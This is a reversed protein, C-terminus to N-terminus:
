ILASIWSKALDQQKGTGTEFTAKAADGGIGLMALAQKLQTDGIETLGKAGAERGGLLTKTLIDDISKGAESGAERQAGVTGGSRGTGTVEAQRKMADAQSTVAQVAPAANTAAETRGAKMLGSFYNQAQGLAGQGSAQSKQAQPLAWNFVNSLKAEGSKETKSQGVGM